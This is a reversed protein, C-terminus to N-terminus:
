RRQKARLAEAHTKEDHHPCCLSQLNHWAWREGGEALPTVHDVVDALRVCAPWACMPDAALKAARLRRWRRTSGAVWTDPRNAWPPYCRVCRQGSPVIVGCRCARPPRYPM